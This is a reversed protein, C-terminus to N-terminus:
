GAALTFERVLNDIHGKAQLLLETPVAGLEVRYTAEPLDDDDSWAALLADVDLASDQEDAGAESEAVEAWVVKGRGGSPEVGWGSSLRAVLSLGRGTMAESDGRM